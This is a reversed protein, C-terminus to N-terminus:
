RGSPPSSCSGCRRVSHPTRSTPALSIHKWTQGICIYRVNVKSCGFDDGISQLGEGDARRRRIAVIDKVTLKAVGNSEGRAKTGHRMADAANEQSTGWKLNSPDNNQRDGDLHRVQTHGKRPTGHFALAVLTHLRRCKAVGDCSVSSQLYGDRDVSGKLRVPRVRRLSLVDGESTAVYGPYGPVARVVM